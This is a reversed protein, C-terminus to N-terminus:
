NWLPETTRTGLLGDSSPLIDSGLEYVFVKADSQPTDVRLKVTLTVTTSAGGALGSVIKAGPNVKEGNTQGSDDMVLISASRVSSENTIHVTVTGTRVDDSAAGWTATATAALTIKGTHPLFTTPGSVQAIRSGNWAYGRSQHLEVLKPTSCCSESDSIDITVGGASRPTVSWIYGQAIQGLSVITGDSRRDFGILQEASPEGYTCSILAATELQPDGDLNAYVVKELMDKDMPAPETPALLRQPGTPCNVNPGELTWKSLTVKIATLQSATIRGDPALATSASSSVAPSPAAPASNEVAPGSSAVVAAPANGGHSTVACAALPVAVALVVLARVASHMRRNGRRDGDAQSEGVVVPPVSSMAKSM